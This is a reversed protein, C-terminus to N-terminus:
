KIEQTAYRDLIARNQAAIKRFDRSVRKDAAARDWFTRAIPLARRWEEVADPKPPVIRFEREVRQGDIPVYMMPLVDYSPALRFSRAGLDGFFSINGFHCDTNAILASLSYLFRMTSADEESIAGRELLRISASVWNDKQGFWESDLSDLSIVGIRGHPGPRDFREVELFVRGGGEFIRTRSSAVGNEALLSLALSECILLDAWRRGNFDNTTPSFKVLVHRIKGAERLATLFKPQEGAASSGPPVGALAANAASIYATIRHAAPTPPAPQTLSQYYREFSDRGVILNGPCDESRRALAVMFDDESWDALRAPLLLEAHRRAFARGLFGQPRCDSLFYPIGPHISPSSKRPVYAYGRPEYALLEGVPNCEGQPSLEFLPVRSGIERLQRTAVYVTARGQGLAQVRGKMRAVLLSFSPQSIALEGCLQKATSPGRLKLIRILQNERIHQSELSM